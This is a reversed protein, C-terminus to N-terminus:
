RGNRGYGFNQSGNNPPPEVGNDDHSNNEFNSVGSNQKSPQMNASGDGTCACLGFTLALLLCCRLSLIEKMPAAEM